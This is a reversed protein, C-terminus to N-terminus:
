IEEEEEDDDDDDLDDDDFDDDFDDDDDDFDDDFEDDLDDDFDDDLDDDLDDDEDDDDDDEDEDRASAALLIPSPFEDSQQWSLVGEPDPRHLNLLNGGLMLTDEDLFGVIQLFADQTGGHYRRPGIADKDRGRM